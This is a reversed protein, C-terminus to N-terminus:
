QRRAMETEAQLQDMELMVLTREDQGSYDVRRTLRNGRADVLWDRPM